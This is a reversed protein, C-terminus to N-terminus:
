GFVQFQDIPGASDYPFILAPRNVVVQRGDEFPEIDFGLVPYVQRLIELTAEFYKDARGIFELLDTFVETIQSCGANSTALGIKRLLVDCWLWHMLGILSFNLSM